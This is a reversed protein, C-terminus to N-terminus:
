RVMIKVETGQGPASVIQLEWGHAKVLHKVIALGLGTGGLTRSRAADVRYFREGLRSLHKEPIGIGTDKVFLVTRGEEERAGFTVGGRETFKVANDVLNTLIQILRDRDAAITGLDPPVSVTLALDKAAAKSGLLAVVATAVDDFAVASKEVAIVGLEIKSITMLDDVLSNIRESNAKITEVFKEPPVDIGIDMVEFGNADLLFTVINKGIDHVDGEVTGILVKGIRKVELGKSLVPKVRNLIETLM